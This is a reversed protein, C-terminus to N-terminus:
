SEKNKFAPLLNKKNKLDGLLRKFVFKIMHVVGCMILSISILVIGIYWKKMQLNLLLVFIIFM